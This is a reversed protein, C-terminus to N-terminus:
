LEKVIEALAEMAESYLRDDVKDAVNLGFSLDRKAEEVAGAKKYLLGRKLYAKSQKPAMRIVKSWDAIALAGEGM